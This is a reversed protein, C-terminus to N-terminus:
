DEVNLLDGPEVGLTITDPQGMDDWVERRLAFHWDVANDWCDPRETVFDIFRSETGDPLTGDGSQFLVTRTKTLV